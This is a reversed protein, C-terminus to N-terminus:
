VRTNNWVDFFFPEGDISIEENIKSGNQTATVEVTKALNDEIMWDLAEQHFNSIGTATESNIRSQKFLWGKSGQEFGSVDSLLNGIWGRRFEPTPVETETARKEGIVSLVITTGFSIDRVLDGNEDLDIDWIGTKSDQILKVDIDQEAM